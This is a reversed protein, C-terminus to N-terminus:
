KKHIEDFLQMTGAIGADSKKALMARVTSEATKHLEKVREDARIFQEAEDQTKFVGVRVLFDSNYTLAQKLERIIINASYGNVPNLLRDYWALVAKIATEKTEAIQESRLRDLEANATRRQAELTNFIRLRMNIITARIGAM